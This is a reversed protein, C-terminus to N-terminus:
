HTSSPKKESNSRSNRCKVVVLVPPSWCFNRRQLSQFTALTLRIISIRENDAMSDQIWDYTRRDKHLSLTWNGSQDWSCFSGTSDDWGAAWKAWTIIPRWIETGTELAKKTLDPDESGSALSIPRPLPYHVSQSIDDFWQWFFHRWYCFCNLKIENAGHTKTPKRM